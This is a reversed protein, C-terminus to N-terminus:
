EGLGVLDAAADLLDKQRLRFDHRRRPSRAPGLVVLVDLADLRGLDIDTQALRSPRPALQQCRQALPERGPVFTVM